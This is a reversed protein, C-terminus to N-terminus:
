WAFWVAEFGSYGFGAYIDHKLTITSDTFVAGCTTQTEDQWYSAGIGRQGTETTPNNVSAGIYGYREEAYCMYQYKKGVLGTLFTSMTKPIIVLHTYKASVPIVLWDNSAHYKTFILEGTEMGGGAQIGAIETPMQDLTLTDTKGTKGRIADAIAVLKNTLAM